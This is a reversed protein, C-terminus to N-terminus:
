GPTLPRPWHVCRIGPLFSQLAEADRRASEVIWAMGRADDYLATGPLPPLHIMGIVPKATGFTEALWSM